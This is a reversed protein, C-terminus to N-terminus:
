NNNEDWITSFSPLLNFVQFPLSTLFTSPLHLKLKLTALPCPHLDGQEYLELEGIIIGKVIRNRNRGRGRVRGKMQKQTSVEDIKM